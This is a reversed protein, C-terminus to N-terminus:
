HGGPTKWRLICSASKRRFDAPTVAARLWVHGGPTFKVANSLLNILVQRLKIEDAMIYRPLLPSKELSLNLGKEIARYAFMDEVGRLLAFLDVGAENLSIQGAEIKSLVLIDNILTLLHEGSHAIIELNQAAGPFTLTM